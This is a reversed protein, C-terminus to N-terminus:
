TMDHRVTFYRSMADCTEIKRKRNVIRFRKASYRFVIEEEEEEIEEEEGKKKDKKKEEKKEEEKEKKKEEEKEKEKEM